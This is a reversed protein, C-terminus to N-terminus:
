FWVILSGTSVHTGFSSINGFATLLWSIVASSHIPLLACSFNVSLEVSVSMHQKSGLTSEPTMNRLLLFFFIYIYISLDHLDVHLQM